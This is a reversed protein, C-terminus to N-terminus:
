KQLKPNSELYHLHAKVSFYIAQKINEPTLTEDHKCKEKMLSTNLIVGYHVLLGFIMKMAWIQSEVPVNSGVDEQIKQLFVKQGPPGYREENKQEPENYPIQINDRLMIKFTNLIASGSNIFFDFVDVALQATDSDKEGLKEIGVKMRDYNYDFVRWYLNEKNTFHYNIAALNVNAGTAIDRVSTGDFGNKAFLENAVDLIDVKTESNM